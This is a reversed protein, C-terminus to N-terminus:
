LDYGFARIVAKAKDTKLYALLATAAANDKAGALLVADQRIPNHLHFPVIWASGSKVKGDEYVQSLAVFGLEANGSAVFGFAQGISEGQVFRPELAALQGLRTLTEVAAAGYPALKPSALALHAFQGRKLVDGNGDVFGSKPSWLALKGIAYTFRSGPVTAGDRELRAPTEDDAALFVDFPAGSRIQAYFKGTSGSTVVAQHGSAKEFDAALVKMPGIFNAAVAVQVETAQAGAAFLAAMLGAILKM